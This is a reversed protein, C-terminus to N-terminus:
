KSGDKININILGKLDKGEKGTVENRASFHDKLIRELLWENNRIRETRSMAWNARAIQIQDSFNADAKKWDSITDESKGIKDAALAQNPLRKYYELFKLKLDKNKDENM